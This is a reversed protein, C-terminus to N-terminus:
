GDDREGKNILVDGSNVLSGIEVIGDDGLHSFSKYKRDKEGHRCIIIILHSYYSLQSSFNHKEKKEDRL